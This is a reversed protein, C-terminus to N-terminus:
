KNLIQVGTQAAAKPFRRAVNALLPFLGQTDRYYEFEDPLLVQKGDDNLERYKLWHHIDFRDARSLWGGTGVVKKLRSLDRGVQLDITGSCTCVQVKTGAHRETAYGICIGALLRDFIKEDDTQPLYDPCATIYKLYQHFADIKPQQHHFYHAVLPAGTEGAIIASVRMGLDGEVTRKVLPEPLGHM